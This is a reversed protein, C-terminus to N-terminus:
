GSLSRALMLLAFSNITVHLLMPARLGGSALRAWGLLLGLFFIWGVLVGYFLHLSAFVGASVALAAARGMWGSLWPLLVGRFLLEEGVPALLTVPILLLGWGLLGMPGQRALEVLPHGVEDLTVSFVRSLWALLMVTRMGLTILLGLSVFYTRLWGRTGEEKPGRTVRRMLLVGALLLILAQAWSSLLAAGRSPGGLLASLGRMTATAGLVAVALSALVRLPLATAGRRRGLAWLGLLAVSAVGLGIGAKRQEQPPIVSEERKWPEFLGQPPPALSSAAVPVLAVEWRAGDREVELRVPAGPAATRVAERLSEVAEVPRGDAAHVVDGVRLGAAMAPGREDVQALRVGPGPYEPDLSVGLVRQSASPLASVNMGERGTAGMHLVAAAVLTDVIALAMLRRQWLRYSPSADRRWAFAVLAWVVPVGCAPIFGAVLAWIFFQRAVAEPGGPVQAPQKEPIAPPLLSESVSFRV